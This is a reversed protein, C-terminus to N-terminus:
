HCVHVCSSQIFMMFSCWQPWLSSISKQLLWNNNVTNDTNEEMRCTIVWPITTMWYYILPTHSRENRKRNSPNQNLVIWTGSFTIHYLVHISPENGPSWTYNIHTRIWISSKNHITATIQLLMSATVKNWVNIMHVAIALTYRYFIFSFM